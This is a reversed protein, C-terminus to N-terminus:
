EDANEKRNRWADYIRRIMDEPDNTPLKYIKAFAKPVIGIVNAGERQRWKPNADLSIGIGALRMEEIIEFPTIHNDRWHDDQKHSDVQRGCSICFGGGWAIQHSTKGFARVRDYHKAYMM